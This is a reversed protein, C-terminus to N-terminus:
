IVKKSRLENYYLRKNILLSGLGTLTIFVQMLGGVFPVIGVLFYIIIGFFVAKYSSDTKKVKFVRRGLAIAGLTKAFWLLLFFVVFLAIALPIGFVTLMLLILTIPIVIVALLGVLFSNGISGIAKESVRIVFNPLLFVLAIGLITTLVVDGLLFLVFFGALGKGAVDEQSRTEVPPARRETTGVITAGEAVIADQESTYTMHGGINAGRMLSLSGVGPSWIDGGITNAVVVNGGAVTLNKGIPGLFQLTGGVAVISGTVETSQDIIVDGGAVTINGGVIANSFTVNGGAIRVDGNVEGSINLNGGVALLDSTTTGDFTVDAGATYIDGNVIGSIIVRESAAFYDRNISESEALITTQPLHQTQAFSPIALIFFLFAAALLIHIKNMNVM